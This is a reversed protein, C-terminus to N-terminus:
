KYALAFLNQTFIADRDIYGTKIAVWTLLAVRIGKWLLWRIASRVGHLFPADEMCEIRCFGATRAVQQISHRTFAIKHTFDGYRMRGFMPSEANPAHIIWRVETKLIRRVNDACVFLENKSLHEIVDFTVVVDCSEDQMGAVIQLLDGREIGDIGLGKTAAFQFSSRDYASVNRYGADMAVSIFAGYGAGLDVIKSNHDKPLL